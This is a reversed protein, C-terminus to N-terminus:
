RGSGIHDALRVALAVITLTPNAHGATPFVSSSCVYLNGVGHVRCHEDVVGHRESSAMRTTGMQHFGDVAQELVHGHVDDQKYRISAVRQHDHMERALVEHARVVSDVDQASYRLDVRLRPMGLRDADAALVVRSDRSPAQEAHYYLDYRNVPSYVFVAPIRRETFFRRYLYQMTYLSAQPLDLLINRVHPWYSPESANGCFAKQIAPAALIDRVLPLSLAIYASSLIGNRHEPNAAPPNTSWFATNLLGERRQTEPALWIRRRCYVGDADREFGYITRRPDGSFQIEAISGFLHGMYYRGLHSYRNGIGEHDVRNSALLLRTTELGGGALVFTQAQIQFRRGPATTVSVANVRRHEPDLDVETCASNLLVRIRKNTALAGRYHRGFHTPPSWREIYSTILAGDRFGPVLSEPAGPLATTTTYAYAGAHCYENARPYYRDLEAWQIPWGSDPVYDRRELDVPDLPLCRGVWLATTGGLQRSRCDPLPAHHELSLVEGALDSSSIKNAKMGGAELLMVDAGRGALELALTVGAAGAGVVCVQTSLVHGPPIDLGDEILSCAGARVAGQM